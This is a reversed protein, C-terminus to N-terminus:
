RPPLKGAGCLAANRADCESVPSVLVKMKWGDTERAKGGEEVWESGGESRRHLTVARGTLM